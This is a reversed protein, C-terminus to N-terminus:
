GPVVEENWPASGPGLGELLSFFLYVFYTLFYIYYVLLGGDGFKRDGPPIKKIRLNGLRAGARVAEVEPRRRALFLM